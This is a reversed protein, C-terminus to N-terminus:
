WGSREMYDFRNKKINLWSSSKYNLKKTVHVINVNNKIEYVLSFKGFTCFYLYM